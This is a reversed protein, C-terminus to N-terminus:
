SYICATGGSCVIVCKNLATGPASLDYAINSCFILSGWSNRRIPYLQLMAGEKFVMDQM